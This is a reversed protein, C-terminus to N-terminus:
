KTLIRRMLELHERAATLRQMEEESIARQLVERHKYRVLDRAAYAKLMPQLDNKDVLHEAWLQLATDLLDDFGLPNLLRDLLESRIDRVKQGTSYSPNKEAYAAAEILADILEKASKDKM